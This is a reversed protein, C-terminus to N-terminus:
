SLYVLNSFAINQNHWVSDLQEGFGNGKRGPVHNSQMKWGGKYNPTAQTVTRALPIRTSAGHLIGPQAWSFRECSGERDRVEGM